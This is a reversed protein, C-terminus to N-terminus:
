ASCPLYTRPPSASDGSRGPKAAETASTNSAGSVPAYLQRSRHWRAAIDFWKYAAM